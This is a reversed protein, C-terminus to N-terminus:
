FDFQALHLVCLLLRGRHYSQLHTVECMLVCLPLRGRHCWELHTMDCLHFSDHWVFWRTMDCSYCACCCDDWIADNWILWTGCTFHTMGCSGTLWTEDAALAHGTKEYIPHSCNTPEKSNCTENESYRRKYLARKCFLGIIKLLKSITAVGYCWNLHTMSCM